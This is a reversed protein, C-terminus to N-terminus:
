RSGAGLSETAAASTIGLRKVEGCLKDLPLDNLRAMTEKQMELFIPRVVKLGIESGGSDARAYCPQPLGAAPLLPRIPIETM